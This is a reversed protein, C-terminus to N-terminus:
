PTIEEWMIERYIEVALSSTAHGPMVAGGGGGGRVAGGPGDSIGGWGGVAGGALSIMGLKLFAAYAASADDLHNRWYLNIYASPDAHYKAREACLARAVAERWDTESM